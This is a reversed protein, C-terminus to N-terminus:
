DDRKRGLRLLDQRKIRLERIRADYNKLQEGCRDAQIRRSRALARYQARAADRESESLRWDREAAAAKDNYMAADALM